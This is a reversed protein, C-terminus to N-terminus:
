MDLLRVQRLKFFRTFIQDGTCGYLNSLKGNHMEEWKENSLRIGLYERLNNCFLDNIIRYFVVVKLYFYKCTETTEVM